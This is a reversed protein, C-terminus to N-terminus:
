CPKFSDSLADVVARVVMTAQLQSDYSDRAHPTLEALDDAVLAKFAPLAAAGASLGEALRASARPLRLPTDSAAGVVINSRGQAPDHVVAGIAHAFEGVKRCFKRYGWRADASFAPVWVGRLLEGDRLATEMLGKQFEPLPVERPGTAGDIVAVADLARLATPWDAAPDAHALSGGVTGRNRVSRYAIGRAVHMLYGRTTDPLKGDEIMAHTVAAGIFLRDAESRVERLAALASVDIVTDASGIRLNLMPLLSQGGSLYRAMGSAAGYLDRAGDASAARRYTLAAAKV